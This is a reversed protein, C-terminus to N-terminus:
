RDTMFKEDPWTLGVLGNMERLKNLGVNTSISQNISKEKDAGLKAGGEIVARIIAFRTQPKGQRKLFACIADYPKMNQFAGKLGLAFEGAEIALLKQELAEWAELEQKLREIQQRVVALNPLPAKQEKM